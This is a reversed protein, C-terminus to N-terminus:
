LTGLSSRTKGRDGLLSVPTLCSAPLLCPQSLQGLNDLNNWAMHRAWCYLQPLFRELATIAWVSGPCSGTSLSLQNGKRRWKSFQGKRSGCTKRAKARGIRERTGATPPHLLPAPPHKAAPWPSGMVNHWWLFIFTGQRQWASARSCFSLGVQLWWKVKILM